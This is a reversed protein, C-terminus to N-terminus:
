FESTIMEISFESTLIKIQSYSSVQKVHTERSAMWAIVRTPMLRTLVREEMKVLTATVNMWNQLPIFLITNETFDINM